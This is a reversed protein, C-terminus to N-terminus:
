NNLNATWWALDVCALNILHINIFLFTAPIREAKSPSSLYTCMVTNIERVLNEPSTGNMEFIKVVRPTVQGRCKLLALLFHQDSINTYIPWERSM